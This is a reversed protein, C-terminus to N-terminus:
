YSFEIVIRNNKARGEPTTNTDIFDTAGMGIADIREGSVRREVLYSKIRMAELEANQKSEEPSLSNDTYAKITAKVKPFDIMTKAIQDLTALSHRDIGQNPGSFRMYLTRTMFISDMKPCGRADVPYGRPTDPCADLSDPVNDMDEDPPCGTSDATIVAYIHPCKDLYDPLGDKDSDLPCGYEDVMGRAEPPTDPCLDIANPVGDLDSDNIRRDRESLEAEPEEYSISIAGKELGFYVSVGFKIDGYARSRYDNTRQSFDAGLGTLYNFTADATISIDERLFWELGVGGCLLFETAGYGINSGNGDQVELKEDTYVSRISWFALGAGGTAYPIFQSNGILSYKIKIKATSIKWYENANEKGIKIVDHSISDNFVKGYEFEGILTVEENLGYGAGLSFAPSIVWPQWKPNLAPQRGGANLFLSFKKEMSFDARATGYSVLIISVVILLMLAIIHKPLTKM